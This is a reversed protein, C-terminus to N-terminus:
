SKRTPWTVVPASACNQKDSWRHTWRWGHQLSDLGARWYSAACLTLQQVSQRFLRITQQYSLAKHWLKEIEWIDQWLYIFRIFVSSHIQHMKLMFYPLLSIILVRACNEVNTLFIVNIRSMGLMGNKDTVVRMGNWWGAGTLWGGAHRAYWESVWGTWMDQTGNCHTMGQMGCMHNRRSLRSVYWTHYQLSDGVWM